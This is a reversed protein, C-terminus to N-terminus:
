AREDRSQEEGERRQASVGAYLDGRPKLASAVYVEGERRERLEADAGFPLFILAAARQVNGSVLAEGGGGDGDLSIEAVRGEPERRSREAAARREGAQFFLAFLSVCLDRLQQAPHPCGHFPGAIFEM